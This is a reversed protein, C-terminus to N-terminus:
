LFHKLAGLLYSRFRGREPDAGGLSQRQLVDMFFEHVLERAAEESRGDNRLFAMVPGYYTACLDSLAQKAEVSGGAASLVETWRTTVFAGPPRASMPQTSQPTM